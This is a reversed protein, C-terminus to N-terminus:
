KKAAKVVVGCAIRDGANGAPDSHYDDAGAHVIFASGDSDLMTLPGPHVTATLVMYEVEVAGSEPVHLNPLDGFHYGKKNDFGHERKIPNWHGGASKFPPECKGVEHIHIAHTGPPLATIKVDVLTGFPVDRVSVEGVQKGSADKLTATAREPPPPPAKEEAANACAAALLVAVAALTLARFNKWM